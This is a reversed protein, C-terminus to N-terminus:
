LLKLGMEEMFKESNVVKNEKLDINKYSAYLKNLLRIKEKSDEYYPSGSYENIIKNFCYASLNFSIYIKNLVSVLEKYTKTELTSDQHRKYFKNPHINKYYKIGLKYLTYDQNNKIGM